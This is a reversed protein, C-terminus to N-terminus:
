CSRGGEVQALAPKAPLPPLKEELVGRANKWVLIGVIVIWMQVALVVTGIGLLLYEAFFREHLFMLGYARAGLGTGRSYVFFGVVPLIAGAVFVQLWSGM